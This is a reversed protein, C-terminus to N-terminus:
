LDVGIRKLATALAPDDPHGAFVIKGDPTVVVASPISDLNLMKSLPRDAPELVWGFDIKKDTKVKRSRKRAEAVGGEDGSEVNIGVVAVQQPSLSHARSKLENMSRMCPGCWSAWFDLLVAKQGRMLERLSTTGSEPQELELDLPITIAALKQKSRRTNVLDALVDGLSPDAWFAEKIAREFEADNDNKDALLATAVFMAGQLDSKQHFVPPDAEHWTALNQQLGALTSPLSDLSRLRIVVVLRVEDITQQSIGTKQAAQAAREFEGMSTFEQKLRELTVDKSGKDQQKGPARGGASQSATAGLSAECSLALILISVALITKM